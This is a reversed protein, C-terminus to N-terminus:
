GTLPYRHAMNRPNHRQTGVGHRETLDRVMACVRQQYARPPYSGGSYLSQYRPVLEPHLRALWALYWERAGPRLHLVIPTVSAAGAEAIARVTEELREPGDSLFPLIPAMLVSVSFGADALTRCMRLRAQPSPTGPEVERWLEADVSGISVSLAVDTVQAAERLLELDRLLLAGKTLISFPNRADRLAAIIRPMLQYRGEARQYCDVNTGMAIPEGRWSPKVLEKRLLEPANVKVIVKSDFDHGADLDLYEHTRRAFCYVCAHGCGRYPNITWQFPVRSAAPVKNIITRARVEYFTMGHFEPTDFTRGCSEMGFLTLEAPQDGDSSAGVRQGDWRM